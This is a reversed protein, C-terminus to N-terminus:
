PEVAALLAADLHPPLKKGRREARRLIGACAKQSLFYRPPVPGTELTEALTARAFGYEEGERLSGLTAPMSCGTLSKDNRDLFLARTRGDSGAPPCLPLMADLWDRLCVGLPTPKTPCSEPSTKGCSLDLDFEM